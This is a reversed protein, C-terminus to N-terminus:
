AAGQARVLEHLYDTLAEVSKFAWKDKASPKFRVGLDRAARVGAKVMWQSDCPCEAGAARLEAELEAPDRRRKAALAAIV